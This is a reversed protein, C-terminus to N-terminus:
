PSVWLLSQWGFVSCCKNQDCCFDPLLQIAKLPLYILLVDAKRPTEAPLSDAQSAPSGVEIGPNLLDWPSPYAVWALIRPSGPPESLLSDAQLSPSMPKIGPNPLDVPSSLHKGSWYEPRSFEMSQLLNSRKPTEELVMSWFCWNKLAWGEKHDLEWMWVYSSSFGYNQSYLHLEAFYHRQKKIHQRPKDCSKKLPSLM